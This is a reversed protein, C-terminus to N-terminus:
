SRVGARGARALGRVHGLVRRGLGRDLANVPRDLRVARQPHGLRVREHGDQDPDEARLEKASLQEGKIKEGINDSRDHDDMPGVFDIPLGMEEARKRFSHRWHDHIQGALYVTLRM